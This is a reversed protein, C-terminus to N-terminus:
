LCALAAVIAPQREKAATRPFLQQVAAGSLPAASVFGLEGTPDEGFLCLTANCSAPGGVDLTDDVFTTAGM